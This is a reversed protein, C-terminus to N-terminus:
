EELEKSLNTAKEIDKDQTSKDGGPLLLIIEKGQITYYVRYGPGFFMRLEFLNTSIAKCDGFAGIILKDLRRLIRAHTLRDKIKDIWKDFYETSRPEYKM